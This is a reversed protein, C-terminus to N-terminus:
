TTLKIRIVIFKSSFVIPRNGFLVVKIVNRELEFVVPAQKSLALWFMIVDLRSHKAYRRACWFSLHCAGYGWGYGPFTIQV